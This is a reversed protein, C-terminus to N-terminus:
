MALRCRSSPTSDYRRALSAKERATMVGPTVRVSSTSHHISWRSFSRPTSVHNWGETVTCRAPTSIPSEALGTM